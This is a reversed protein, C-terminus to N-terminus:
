RVEEFQAVLDTSGELVVTRSAETEGDSWGTFAWGDAPSATLSVPLGKWFRGSFPAAVSVATLHFDGAGAPETDLALDVTGDLGLGRNVHNWYAAPRAQVFDRAYDVSSYWSSASAGCWLAYQEPIVPEIRAHMGDLVGLAHDVSLVTNLYDSAQNALLVRFADNQLADAIPLGPGSFGVSVGFHDYTASGWGHGLDFVMHRFPGPDVRERWLKINNSWWDGNAMYGVALIATAMNEVDIMSTFTAWHDPDSLDHTFAFANMADFAEWDGQSVRWWDDTGDATCEIRDLNEPDAGHHHDIYREDLKERFSYLGWFEGNLYVVTPEWAQSDINPLRVGDRDRFLQDVLSNETHTPCWDGAGELVMVQFSDQAMNPFFAHDLTAPGYANRPLVRWNKQEFARTYGGHIKVGAEQDIVLAGDAAFVQIHLDREWDEWFNAGFYPYYSTYDEPGYAYIGTLEDYLDFPDIVLSVIQLGDDLVGPSLSYTATAARSPWLGASIGVARVVSFDPRDDVAFPGEYLPDTPGPLSGDRTIRVTEADGTITVTVSDAYFGPPPSLEPVPAFGPRSESENALGPTPALFYGWDAPDSLSRGWSVDRYLRPTEHVDVPCGDPAGLVVTDGTAALSFSAHLEPGLRDKGSAFVLLVEGPALVQAPLLWDLPADPDDSLGWGDLDVPADSANLLELWDSTDEDGDLLGHVNAAVLENIVLAPHDLDDCIDGVSEVDASDLPDVHDPTEGLTVQGSTTCALLALVPVVM